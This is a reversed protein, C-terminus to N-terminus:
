RGLRLPGLPSQPTFGPAQPRGPRISLHTPRRRRPALPLEAERLRHPQRLQDVLAAPSRQVLRRDLLYTGGPQWGRGANAKRGNVLDKKKCDCSIVPQWGALREVALANIYEFQSNRDPYQAGEVAKATAQLSYGMRHLLEAVKWSSVQHGMDTLARALQRTSKFTWRLPSMPDGRAGPEVLDELNALLHEDADERRRGGGGEARVRASPPEKADFARAGDSVTSRSMGSASAVGTVGGQGALRAMAGALLRRQREDLHDFMFEFFGALGESDIEM